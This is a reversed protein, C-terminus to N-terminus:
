LFYVVSLVAVTIIAFAEIIVTMCGASARAASSPRSLKELRKLADTNTLKKFIIALDLATQGIENEIQVDAGADILANVTDARDFMVAEMLATKGYKDQANLDAGAKILANVTDTRGHVTAMLATQGSNNPANIDAGAKILANVIETDGNYARWRLENWGDADKAEIDIGGKVLANVVEASKAFHLATWGNENDKANVDIGAKILANVAEIDDDMVASHLETSGDYHRFNPNTVYHRGNVDADTKESRSSDYFESLNQTIGCYECTAVTAGDEFKLVAGCRKCIFAAAM